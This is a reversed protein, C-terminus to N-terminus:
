HTSVTATDINGAARLIACTASGSSPSRTSVALRRSHSLSLHSRRGSSAATRGTLASESKM